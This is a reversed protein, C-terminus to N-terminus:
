VVPQSGSGTVQWRIYWEVLTFPFMIINFPFPLAFGYQFQTYFGLLALSYGVLEDLYTEEQRVEIMEHANAYRLMARACILGGRMASQVASIIM